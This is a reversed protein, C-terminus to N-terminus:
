TSVNELESIWESLKTKLVYCGTKFAPYLYWFYQTFAPEVDEFWQLDKKLWSIGTNRIEDDDYDELWNLVRIYTSYDIFHNNFFWKADSHVIADALNELRM